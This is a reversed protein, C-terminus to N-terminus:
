ETQSCSGDGELSDDVIRHCEGPSCKHGFAVGPQLGSGPTGYFLWHYRHASFIGNLAAGSTEVRQKANAGSAEDGEGLETITRKRAIRQVRAKRRALGQAEQTVRRAQELRPVHLGLQVDGRTGVILRVRVAVRKAALAARRLDQERAASIAEQSAQM